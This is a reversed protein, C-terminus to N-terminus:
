TKMMAYDIRSKTGQQAHKANLMILMLAHTETKFLEAQPALQVHLDMSSMGLTVHKALIPIM